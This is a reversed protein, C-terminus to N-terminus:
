INYYKDRMKKAFTGADEAEKFKERFLHNKKNIQLQVRWWDGIKCVNRYGSKNNANKRQRNLSNVSIDTIRLNAKRNDLTDGYIHDVVKNKDSCNM